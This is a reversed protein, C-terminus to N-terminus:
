VTVGLRDLTVTIDEARLEHYALERRLASKAIRLNKEVLENQHVLRGVHSQCEDLAENYNKEQPAPAPTFGPVAGTSTSRKVM